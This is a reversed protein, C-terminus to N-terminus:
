SALCFKGFLSFCNSNQTGPPSATKWEREVIEGYDQCIVNDEGLANRCFQGCGWVGGDDMAHQWRTGGRVAVLPIQLNCWSVCVVRDEIWHGSGVRGSLAQGQM